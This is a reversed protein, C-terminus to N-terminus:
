TILEKLAAYASEQEDVGVDAALYPRGLEALLVFRPRGGATKKDRAIFPALDSFDVAPLPAPQLWDVLRLLEPVFDVAGRERSLLAAFVMGYAVADGHQLQMDTVAELAHALTHGFNLHAREGSEREDASVVAAKVAVSRGVADVLLGEDAERRWAPGVVQLLAPDRIYGHKVLEVTGQKFEREPLTALTAVDAIVARPQWFAGVLNKGEPLDLGTKGGVSADVMALLSTPFQYFAVGRLYSAAVFGALDGVVGGGLAVIAGDRGLGARAVAGVVDGWTALNKSSEGAPVTLTTVSRGASEIAAVLPPGHLPGVHQDTVVVVSHEEIVAAATALLDSGVTVEYGVGIVVPVRRSPRTWVTM